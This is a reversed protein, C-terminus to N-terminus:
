RTGGVGPSERFVRAEFGMLEVDPERWADPPLGAKLCTHELFTERTWAHEVPVQPLLLGRRGRGAAVLGHRGVRVDEARIPSPRGLVSVDLVLQPLEELSVREFRHDETAALVAARTVAEVLPYLPEVYGICGRLSGDRAHISVFAGCRERLAPPQEGPDPGEHGSLRAEIAARALALLLPGEEDGLTPVSV